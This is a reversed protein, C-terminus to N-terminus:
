KCRGRWEEHDNMVMCVKHIFEVGFPCDSLMLCFQTKLCDLTQLISRNGTNAEDILFLIAELTDAIKLICREENTLNFTNLADPPLAYGLQKLTAKYPSPIDGSHVEDLDHDLATNVLQLTVPIGAIEALRRVYLAVFYSHEAVSQPRTNRIIAWRPVHAMDRVIPSFLDDM